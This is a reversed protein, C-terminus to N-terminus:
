QADKELIYAESPSLNLLSIKHFLLRAFKHRNMLDDPDISPSNVPLRDNDKDQVLMTTRKRLERWINLLTTLNESTDM